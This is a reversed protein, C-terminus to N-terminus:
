APCMTLHRLFLAFFVKSSVLPEVFIFLLHITWALGYYFDFLCPFVLKDLPKPILILIKLNFTSCFQSGCSM